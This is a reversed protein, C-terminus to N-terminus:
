ESDVFQKKLHWGKPFDQHKKIDQIIMSALPVLNSTCKSCLVEVTNEDVLVENSCRKCYLTKTSHKSFDLKSVVNKVRNKM